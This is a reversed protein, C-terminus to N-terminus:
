EDIALESNKSLRLLYQNIKLIHLAYKQYGVFNHFIVFEDESKIIDHKSRYRITKSKHLFM